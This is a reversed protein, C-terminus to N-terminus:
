MESLPVDTFWHHSPYEMDALAIGEGRKIKDRLESLDFYNWFAKLSDLQRVIEIMAHSQDKNAEVPYISSSLGFNNLVKYYSSLDTVPDVRKMVTGFQHGEISEITLVKKNYYCEVGLRELRIALDADEYGLSDCGVNMGNLDFYTQTPLGFSCGYLYNAPVKIKENDDCLNWRSDIGSNDVESSILIGNEVIMKSHKQYTGLTVYNEKAGEIIGELWNEGLCTLDDVFVLYPYIAHVAGSNHANAGCFYDETTVRHKGQYPTPLPSVHTLKFDFQGDWWNNENCNYDVFIVEIPINYKKLQNKLGDLFWEFHHQKRNTLYVISIM